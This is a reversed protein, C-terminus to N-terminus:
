ETWRAAAKRDSARESVWDSQGQDDAELKWFPAKTKLWDMLFQAAEFADQRHESATIVLVIPEGLEMKGYRHIILSAQLDWRELAQREIKQLEKETMGPYHELTLSTVESGENFDRVLGTFTVAAGIDTRDGTLRALEQGTDFIERQVRIM